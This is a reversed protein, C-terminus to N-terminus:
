AVLKFIAEASEAVEEAVEPKTFWNVIQQTFSVGNVACGILVVLCAVAVAGLIGLIIGLLLKKTNFAMM